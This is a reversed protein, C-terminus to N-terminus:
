WGRSQTARSSCDCCCCCCCCRLAAAPGAGCCHAAAARPRPLPSLLRAAALHTGARTRAARGLAPLAARARRRAAALLQLRSRGASRACWCHPATRLARAARLSHPQSPGRASPPGAEPQGTQARACEALLAPAPTPRPPRTTARKGGCARRRAPPCASIRQQIASAASPAITDAARPASCSPSSGSSARASSRSPSSTKIAFRPEAADLPLKPVRRELRQARLVHVM